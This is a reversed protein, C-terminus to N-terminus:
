VFIAFDYRQYHLLLEKTPVEYKLILRKLSNLCSISPQEIEVYKRVPTRNEHQNLVKFSVVSTFIPACHTGWWKPKWYCDMCGLIDDPNLLWNVLTYGSRQLLLALFKFDRYTRNLINQNFIEFKWEYKIGVLGLDLMLQDLDINFHWHNECFILSSNKFSTKNKCFLYQPNRSTSPIRLMKSRCGDGLFVFVKDASLSCCFHSYKESHITSYHLPTTKVFTAINITTIQEQLISNFCVM